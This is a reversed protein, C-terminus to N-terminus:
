RVAEAVTYGFAHLASRMRIARGYRGERRCLCAHGCGHPEAGRCRRGLCFLFDVGTGACAMGCERMRCLSCVCRVTTCGDPMGGSPERKREGDWDPYVACPAASLLRCLPPVNAPGVQVYRSVAGASAAIRMCAPVRCRFGARCSVSICAHVPFVHHLFVSFRFRKVWVCYCPCTEMWSSFDSVPVVICLLMGGSLCPASAPASSRCLRGPLARPCLLCFPVFSLRSLPCCCAPLFISRVSSACLLSGTRFSARVAYLRCYPM